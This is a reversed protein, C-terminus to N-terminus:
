TQLLADRAKRIILPMHANYCLRGAKTPNKGTPIGSLRNSPGDLANRESHTDHPRLCAPLRNCVYM